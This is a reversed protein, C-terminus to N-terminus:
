TSCSSRSRVGGVTNTERRMAMFENRSSRFRFATSPVSVRADSERGRVPVPYNLCSCRIIHHRLASLEAQVSHKAESWVAPPEFGEAGTNQRSCMRSRSGHYDTPNSTRFSRGGPAFNLHNLDRLARRMKSRAVRSCRIGWRLIQIRGTARLSALVDPKPEFGEAGTDSKVSLVALRRCTQEGVTRVPASSENPIRVSNARLNM